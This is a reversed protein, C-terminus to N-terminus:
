DAYRLLDVVAKAELNLLETSHDLTFAPSITTLFDDKENTRTFLINDNYEGRVNISPILTVDQAMTPLPALIFLLILYTCCCIFLMEDMRNM